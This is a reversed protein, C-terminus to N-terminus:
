LVGQKEQDLLQRLRAQHVPTGLIVERDDERNM